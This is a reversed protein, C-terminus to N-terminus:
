AALGPHVLMEYRDIRREIIKLSNEWFAPQSIDINFRAALDAAQHQGTSALLSDYDPLFADGREQYVAYLGLSFLLGFAYPFNYFSLSPIYYHPKWAWMYPNLYQPDLGDGYTEQQARVMIECFDDASLEADARREFVEKEFLYRSSIDVVTQGANVLFAELIALEEDRSQAQDLMADTVITECFTSATEALTMPTRRQLPTKGVLCENHYAHGLEHALTLVQDLSGDFNALIRSEGVSLVPMCFAGGSKGDRPGADIWNLDFARRTLGALRDSFTSFQDIIFSQAETWTFRRDAQGAPAFIDWWPLAEKGLYGAKAQWYRRFAPVSARMSALMVELTGRDVRSQELAEHLADTRGRRRDVTNVTGKVGNLCAALPERVGEWAALEAEYASRRLAEDPHTRLNQVVTIPKEEVQGDQEFAVNLQSTVVEQLKEWARAGSLSLEAALTEEAVSMLFRSTEASEQLHFAHEHAPGPQDLISQFDAQDAALAGIWGRFLMEQQELRVFQPDLESLLRRATSNYSDTSIFSYVFSRLTRGLELAANMRTLYGDIIVAADSADLPLPADRSISHTALYGDVEDLLLAFQRSAQSHEESELSPYVTSLDWRPLTETPM